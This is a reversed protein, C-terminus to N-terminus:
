RFQITILQNVEPSLSKAVPCNRAVRELASRQEKDLGEGEIELMVEIKDVRRPASAMQKLVRAQVGTFPLSNQEAHIGMVTIMCTALSTALLDTPSFSEGKGNNDVPADTMLVEGSGLHVAETRLAGKYQLDFTTM